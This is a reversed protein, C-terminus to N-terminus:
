KVSFTECVRKISVFTGDSAEVHIIELGKNEKFLDLSERLVISIIDKSILSCYPNSTHSRMDEFIRDPIFRIVFGVMSVPIPMSLHVGKARIKVKM